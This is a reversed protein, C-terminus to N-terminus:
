WFRRRSSPCLQLIGGALEGFVRHLHHLAVRRGAAVLIARIDIQRQIRQFEGESVVVDIGKADDAAVAIEDRQDVLQLLVVLRNEHHAALSEGAGDQLLVAVLEDAVFGHQVVARGDRGMLPMVPLLLLRLLLLSTLRRRRVPAPKRSRRLGTWNRGTRMGTLWRRLALIRLARGALLILLLATRHEIQVLRHRQHLARQLHQFAAFHPRLKPRSFDM